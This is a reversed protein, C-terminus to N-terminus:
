VYLDERKHEQKLIVEGTARIMGYIKGQYVTPEPPRRLWIHDGRKYDNPIFKGDTHFGPGAEVILGQIMHEDFYMANEASKQQVHEPLIIGSDRKEKPKIDMVYVLCYDSNMKLNSTDYNNMVYMAKQYETVKDKMSRVYDLPIPALEPIQAIEDKNDSSIINGNLSKTNIKTCFIAQGEIVFEGYSDNHFNISFEKNKTDKIAELARVIFFSHKKM